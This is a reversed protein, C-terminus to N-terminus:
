VAERAALQAMKKMDFLPIKVTHKHLFTIDQTVAHCRDCEMWGDTEELFLGKNMTGCVPCRLDYQKM